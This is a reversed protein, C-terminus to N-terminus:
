FIERLNGNSNFLGIASRRLLRLRECDLARAINESDQPRLIAISLGSAPALPTRSQPM